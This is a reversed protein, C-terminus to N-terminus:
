KRTLAGLEERWIRVDKPADISIKAKTDSCKKPIHLQVLAPGIQLSAWTTLTFCAICGRFEARSEQNVHIPRSVIDAPAEVRIEIAKQIGSVRIVTVKIADTIFFAERPKRTIVLM